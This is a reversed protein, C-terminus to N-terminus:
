SCRSCLIHNQVRICRGEHMASISHTMKPSRSLLSLSACGKEQRINALQPSNPFILDILLTGPLNPDCATLPSHLQIPLAPYQTPPSPQLLYCAPAIPAVRHRAPTSVSLFFPFIHSQPLSAEGVLADQACCCLHSLDVNSM